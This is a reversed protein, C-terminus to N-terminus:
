WEDWGRREKRGVGRSVEWGHDKGGEKGLYHYQQWDTNRPLAFSSAETSALSSSSCSSSATTLWHSMALCPFHPIALSQQLGLSALACSSVNQQCFQSAPSLNQQVPCLICGWFSLLQHYTKNFFMATLILFPDRHFIPFWHHTKTFLQAATSLKLQNVYTIIESSLQTKTVVWILFWFKQLFWFLILCM